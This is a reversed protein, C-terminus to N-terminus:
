RLHGELLLEGKDISDSRAPHLGRGHMGQMHECTVTPETQDPLNDGSGSRQRIFQGPQLLGPKGGSHRESVILLPLEHGVDLLSDPGPKRRRKGDIWLQDAAEDDHDAVSDIVLGDGGAEAPEAAVQM